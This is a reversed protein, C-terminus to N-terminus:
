FMYKMSIQASTEQHEVKFAGFTTVTNVTKNLSYIANFDMTLNKTLKTGAGISFHDESTAPFMLYNFLNIAKGKATTGAYNTIPNKAHNYGVAYWTGDKEYKAGVIYIDQDTWGFDKYGAASGWKTKKYDFSFNFNNFNYSLGIGYEAPQDLNDSFPQSFPSGFSALTFPQSAVSLTNDYTMSIKSKYMLGITFDKNVDYTLGTEFGYGFNDSTGDGIAGMASYHSLNYSIDLSGYQIIPAFGVSFNDKHYAISPAFKMLMLATRTDMLIPHGRFDVGMGAAGYMGLGFSINENINQSLSVEPMLSVDAKSTASDGTITAKITPMFLIAGFDFETKKSKSM